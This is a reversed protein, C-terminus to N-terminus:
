KCHLVISINWLSYSCNFNWESIWIFSLHVIRFLQFSFIYNL